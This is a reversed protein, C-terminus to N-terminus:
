LMSTEIAYVISETLLEYRARFTPKEDWTSRSFRLNPPNFGTAQMESFKFSFKDNRLEFEHEPM